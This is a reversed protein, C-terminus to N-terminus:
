LAEVNYSTSLPDSTPVDDVVVRYPVYEQEQQQASTLLDSFPGCFFIDM